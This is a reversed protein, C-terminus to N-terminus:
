GRGGRRGASRRRTARRGAGAGGGGLGRHHRSRGAEAQRLPRAPPGEGALGGGARRQRPAPPRLRAARPPAAEGAAKGALGQAEARAKERARTLVADRAGSLDLAISPRAADGTIRLAVPVRGDAAAPSALAQGLLEPPVLATVALDLRGAFDFTGALDTEVRGGAQHARELTVLPGTVQYSGSWSRFALTDFGARGLREGAAHLVGWNALAGDTIAMEGAAGLSPRLPLLHRDLRARASGQMALLGSLHGRFRTLRAFFPAAGVNALRYDVQVDAADAGRQLALGIEVEGGFLTFRARTIRLSDPTTRVDADVDRYELGSRVVRAARVRGESLLRPLEPLAMGAAAAAEEASRGGVPREALRAFLLPTYESESPGLLADLDLLEGVADFRATPIRTSDGLAAPLWGRVTADARLRSEGFALQVAEARLEDGAFRIRGAPVRLPQLLSPSRLQLAQLDVRGELRADGPAAPRLTGRLDFPLRGSAQLSDQLGALAVLDEVRATGTTAFAVRPAALSDVRFSLHFPADGLRGELGRTAVVQNSFAVTGGLGALLERGRLRARVEALRLVGEVAPLSDRGVPGRVRAEISARGGFAPREGAVSDALAPSRGTLVAALLGEPLSRVLDDAGFEDAALTVDVRRATSDSLAEVRGSGRLVVREVRLSLSALELRDADRDLVGAHEVGLHLGHVPAPLRGPLEADLVASLNGELGIRALQGGAVRGSARLRQQLGSIEVRTGDRADRYALRGDVIRLEDVAFDVDAGSGASRAGDASFPLNLRGLSDVALEVDPRELVIRGIRVRGALLPLLRPQLLVRSVSALPHDGEGVRADSLAVAPAPWLALRVAGLHVPVGLAARAREAAVRGVREAPLLLVAALALVLLVFPVAGLALAWRLPARRRARPATPAAHPTQRTKM